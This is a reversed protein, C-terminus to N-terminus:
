NISGRARFSDTDAAWASRAQKELERRQRNAVEDLHAVLSDPVTPEEDLAALLSSDLEPGAPRAGAGRM